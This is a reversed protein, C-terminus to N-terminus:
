KNKRNFMWVLSVKAKTPGVYSSTGQEGPIANWEDNANFCSNYKNYNSSIYGVGLSYEMRLSGSKNITHAYGGTLGSVVFYEGQVGKKDYELDYLGGGVYVGAFWGTLQPRENRNGFWYRGELNGNLMQLRNRKSDAKGNDWNWWPFIWEGAISWRKGIPVEIEVNILSVADFLLNTKLAFLDKREVNPSTQVTMIPIPVLLVEQDNVSPTVEVTKSIPEEVIAPIAITEKVIQPKAIAQISFANSRLYPLYNNQIYRWAEGDGIQKLKWGITGQDASTNLIYMVKDRSPIQYDDKILENVKSWSTVSATTIITVENLLTYRQLLMRKLSLARSKALNMNYEYNGDPSAAAGVKLTDISSILEDSGLVEDLQNLSKLNSMYSADFDSNDFQFYFVIKNIDAGITGLPQNYLFEDKDSVIDYASVSLITLCFTIIFLFNKM